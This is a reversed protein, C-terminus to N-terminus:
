SLEVEAVQIVFADQGEPPKQLKVEKVRWGHHQLAGKFPPEGTVNGTLRIASPDFGKAVDVTEGEQKGGIVPELTVHEKLAKQCNRHIDRVAAGIQENAYAQVDEMLFDVLRGERQLLALLLIPEPNPKVPQPPPPNLLEHVKTEFQKDRLWRLAVGQAQFYRALSGGSVMLMFVLRSFLVAGVTIIVVLVPDM